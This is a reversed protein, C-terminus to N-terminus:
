GADADGKSGRVAGILRNPSISWLVIALTSRAGGPGARVGRALSRGLSPSSGRVRWAAGLLADTLARDGGETESNALSDIIMALDQRTPAPGGLTHLLRQALLSVHGAPARRLIYAVGLARVRDDDEVLARHCLDRPWPHRLTYAAAFARRRAEVDTRNMLAPHIAEFAAEADLGNILSLLVETMGPDASLMLGIEAGLAPGTQALRQTIWPAAEGGSGIAYAGLLVRILTRAGREALRDANADFLERSAVGSMALAMASVDQAAARLAAAEHRVSENTHRGLTECVSFADHLVDPRGRSAAHTMAGAIARLQGVRLHEAGIEDRLLVLIIEAAHTREEADSEWDLDSASEPAGIRGASIEHLRDLYEKPTFEERRAEHCLDRLSRLARAERSEDSDDVVLAALSEVRGLEAERGASLTALRQFMMLTSHCLREPALEAQALAECTEMVPIVGALDSVAELDPGDDDHMLGARIEPSLSGLVGRIHELEDAREGGARRTDRVADRLENTVGKAADPGQRVAAGIWAAAHRRDNESTAGLLVSRLEGVGLRETRDGRRGPQSGSVRESLRAYDLPVLRLAAGDQNNLREALEVGTVGEARAGRISAFAHALSESGFGATLQAAGIDLAHLAHVLSDDSAPSQARADPDILLHLEDQGITVATSRAATTAAAFAPHDDGYIRFASWARELSEALGAKAAAGESTANQLENEM